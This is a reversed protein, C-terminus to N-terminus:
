RRAHGIVHKSAGLMSPEAETLRVARLLDSPDVMRGPLDDLLWAFGEVALLRIDAYGAEELEGALEDPRHFYAWFDGDAVKSPDTSHGTRLNWEFDDWATDLLRNSAADMIWACRTVVEALLHGGPRLVRAAERLAAIRDDRDVLHYLPGMLLAVDV